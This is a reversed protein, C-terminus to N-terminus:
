EELIRKTEQNSIYEEKMRQDQINKEYQRANLMMEDM